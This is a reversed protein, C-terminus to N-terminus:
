TFLCEVCVVVEGRFPRLVPLFTNPDTRINQHVRGAGEADFVCLYMWDVHLDIGCDCTPPITYFSM